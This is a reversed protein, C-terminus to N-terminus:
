ITNDLTLYSWEGTINSTLSEGNHPIFISKFEKTNIFDSTYSYKKILNDDFDFQSYKEIEANFTFGRFIADVYSKVFFAPRFNKFDYGSDWWDPVFINDGEKIEKREDVGFDIQPIIYKQEGNWSHKIYSMDYNIVEKLSDLEDLNRSSLDSFFSAVNGIIACNYKINGENVNITKVVLNGAIIEVNNELLICKIQQNPKFNHQLDTTFDESSYRSINYLHGLAINNRETGYLTLDRTINDKQTTIDTINELSYINLFDNDQVDLLQYKDTTASFIYLKYNINNM